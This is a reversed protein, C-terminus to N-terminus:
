PAVIGRRIQGPSPTVTPPKRNRSSRLQYPVSAVMVGPEFLLRAELRLSSQNHLVSRTAM